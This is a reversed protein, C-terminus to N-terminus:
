SNNPTQQENNTIRQKYISLFKQGIAEFSFHTIAYERMAARNYKEPNDLM